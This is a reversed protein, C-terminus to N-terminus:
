RKVEEDLVRAGCDPCYRVHDGVPELGGCESCRWACIERDYVYRCTREARSNWAASAEDTGALWDTSALCDVCVARVRGSAESKGYIAEGGCFPCLLLLDSEVAQGTDSTVSARIRRVTELDPNEAITRPIGPMLWDDM